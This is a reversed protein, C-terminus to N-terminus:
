SGWFMEVINDDYVIFMDELFIHDEDPCEMGQSILDTIVNRYTMSDNMVQYFLKEDYRNHIVIIVKENTIVEDL